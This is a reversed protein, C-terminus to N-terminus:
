PLRYGHIFLPITEGMDADIISDFLGGLGCRETTGVRTSMVLHNKTLKLWYNFGSTNLTQQVAAWGSGSDTFRVAPWWRRAPGSSPYGSADTGLVSSSTNGAHYPVGQAFKKYKTSYLEAVGWTAVNSRNGGTAYLTPTVSCGTGAGTLVVATNTFAGMFELLYINPM